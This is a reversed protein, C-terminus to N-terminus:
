ETNNKSKLAGILRPFGGQEIEHAFSARYNIILSVGDVMVDVVQWRENRNEMRVDIKVKQGASTTVEGRIVARREAISRPSIAINPMDTRFDYAVNAYSRILLKRFEATLSTREDATANRWNQAAALQTMREFNFHRAVREEVMAQLQDGNNRYLEENERVEAFAERVTIEVLELPGDADQSFAKQPGLLIISFLCCQAILATVPFIKSASITM